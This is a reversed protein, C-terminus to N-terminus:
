RATPGENRARGDRAAARQRSRTGGVTDPSLSALAALADAVTM